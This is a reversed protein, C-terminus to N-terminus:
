ETPLKIWAGMTENWQPPDFPEYGSGHFFTLEGFYIKEDVIYFDVRVYPMDNALKEAIELMEDMCEPREEIQSEDRPYLLSFPLYEWGPMYMNRTHDTFRGMDVQVLKPKGNFVHIKYDKLEKGSVLLPEAIIKKPIGKYCKERGHLYYDESLKKQFFCKLRDYDIEQKSKIIKTSGSDHTCKLIFQNPLKEFDIDEFSDWVGITPVIYEKGIAASVYEKVAVKDAMMRYRKEDSIHLKMWQIKENFTIPNELDIYKEFWSYWNVKIYEEDSLHSMYRADLEDWEIPIISKYGLGRCQKCIEERISENAFCVVVPIDEDILHPKSIEIDNWIFMGKRKDNNDFCAVINYGDKRLLYIMLKGGRGSGFVIVDKGKIDFISM